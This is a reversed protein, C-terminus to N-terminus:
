KKLKDEPITSLKEDLSKVAENMGEEMLSSYQKVDHGWRYYLGQVILKEKNFSHEWMNEPEGKRKLGMKLNLQNYASGSPLGIFWLMPGYISLGYSYTKGRWLTSEVEGTVILDANATDGFSFFVEKFLNSRRLSTAVAKALDEPVNFDFKQVTNFMEAADPREYTITGYPFLPVMYLFFGAFNNNDGRKEEFPLV